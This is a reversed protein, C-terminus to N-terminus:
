LSSFTFSYQQRGWNLECATVLIPRTKTNVYKGLRRCERISSSHNSDSEIDSVVSSVSKFDSQNRLFRSTGESQESIGFVVINFKRNQELVKQPSSVTNSSHHSPSSTAAQGQTVQSYTPKHTSSLSQQLNEISNPLQAISVKLSTIELHHHDLRCHPCYFQRLSESSAKLASIANVSLGACRRHIWEKCSGNCSISNTHSDGAAEVSDLCIPM